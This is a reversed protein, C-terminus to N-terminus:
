HVRALLCLPLRFADCMRSLSPLIVLWIPQSFGAFHFPCKLVLHFISERVRYMGKYTIPIVYQM